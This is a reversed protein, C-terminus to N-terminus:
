NCVGLNNDFLKFDPFTLCRDEKTGCIMVVSKSVNYKIDHEMDYVSCVTLLSFVM